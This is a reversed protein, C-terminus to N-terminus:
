SGKPTQPLLMLLRGLAFGVSTDRDWGFLERDKLFYKVLKSRREIVGTEVFRQLWDRAQAKSINLAEAVEGDQMPQRLLQQMLEGVMTLLAEAPDFVDPRRDIKPDDMPLSAPVVTGGAEACDSKTEDAAEPPVEVEQKQDEGSSTPLANSPVRQDFLSVRDQAQVASPKASFLAELADVDRPEPWPLAGKKRLGDLGQSQAGASRVYVPCFHLKDLQEAAGTWTGGKEFDSSVVLSVDALAYILKNRQMANGTNFGANPDYPSILVLRGDRLMNRHDRVLSTRELSDALVGCVLGGAELAGQMASQDIGRAGDSVIMRGARAALAGISRTYEVLEDDVNRSGVVALGGRDLLGIDGCGYLVAPANERLFDKLRRPYDADARSLVWITRARWHDVAQTLL